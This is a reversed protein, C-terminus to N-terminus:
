RVLYTAVFMGLITVATIHALRLDEAAWLAKMKEWMVWEEKM